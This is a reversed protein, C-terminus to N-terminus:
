SLVMGSSGMLSQYLILFRTINNDAISLVFAPSQCLRGYTLPGMSVIVLQETFYMSLIFITSVVFLYLVACFRLYIVHESPHVKPPVAQGHPILLHPM